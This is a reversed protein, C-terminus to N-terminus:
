NATVLINLKNEIRKIHSSNPPFNGKTIDLAKQYYNRAQSKNLEKKEELYKKNYIDGLTEMVKYADAHNNKEYINSALNTFEEAKVLDNKAMYIKALSNYSNTTEIHEAGYAAKYIVVTKELLKQAKDIEGQACFNNGLYVIVWAISIHNEPLNNSYVKLSEKLLTHAQEFDGLVLSLSGLHSLVWATEICDDGYYKKYLMRAKEYLEKAKDYEGVSRYVNGLRVSIWATQIHDIGYYNEYIKYAEELKSQAEKYKGLNKYTSGLYALVKGTKIHKRGYKDEYTILVKELIKSSKQYNGLNRYVSGLYIQTETVKLPESINHKTYIESAKELFQQAKNYDGLNRYVKGLQTSLFAIKEYNQHYNNNYIYLAEDFLKISKKYNANNFYYFGLQTYLKAAINKDILNGHNLFTEVHVVIRQLKDSSPMELEQRMIHELINAVDWLQKSHQTLNLINTLYKLSISQTINHLSFSLINKSNESRLEEEILSFKKLEHLFKSVVAENKYAILLDKSINQSNLLSILLLLDSFDNNSNILQRVSLTIIHYRTQNYEGMDSLITEQISIFDEEPESFLKLYEEYSVKEKRIYYAALSIDLPYPPIKNLFEMVANKDSLYYNCNSMLKTFLEFKEEKDLESVHVINESLIYNNNAINSDRTTIIINGDGWVRPDNPFYNRIDKFSEVNNYIVLWNPYTKVRSSLFVSLKREKEQGDKTQLISNLEENDEETKCLAYALQKISYMLNEKNEASIKWILTNKQKRAYQYAITTKGSGGAGLLVVKRIGSSNYLKKDIKNLIERRDLLIEDYPLPLDACITSHSTTNHYIEKTTLMAIFFSAVMMFIVILWRNHIGFIKSELSLQVPLDNKENEGVLVNGITQFDRQFEKYCDEINPKNIVDILLEFVSFYYEEVFKNIDMTYSVTQGNKDVVIINALKLDKNLKELLYKECDAECNLSINLGEKNYTKGILLLQKLFLNHILLNIYYERLSALQGSREIFDIIHERSNQGIKLMINHVHTNVTRVSISLLYSIKKEGRNHLLCSLIDIERPTFKINGLIKLNNSYLDELKRYNIKNTQM